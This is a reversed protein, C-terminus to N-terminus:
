KDTKKRKEKKKKEFYKVQRAELNGSRAFVALRTENSAFGLMKKFEGPDPKAAKLEAESLGRVGITATGASTASSSTSFFGSAKRSLSALGSLFGRSDPESETEAATVTMNERVQYSRVWGLLPKEESYIQKWGGKREFVSVRSGAKIQGVTPSVSSAESYVPALRVIVADQNAQAPCAALLFLLIIIKLHFKM